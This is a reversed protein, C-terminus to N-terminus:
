VVWPVPTSCSPCEEGSAGEATTVLIGTIGRRVLTRGCKTCRTNAHPTDEHHIYVVGPWNQQAQKHSSELAASPTPPDQRETAWIFDPEYPLLVCPIPPGDKRAECIAALQELGGFQEEAGPLCLWTFETHVKAARAMEANSLITSRDGGLTTQLFREDLSKIGFTVASTLTLIERFADRSWMGSTALHTDLGAERAAAFIDAVFEHMPAPESVGFAIGACGHERALAVAEAPTMPRSRVAGTQSYKYTNCFPCRMTCGRGGLLLWNARPKYHYLPLRDSPVPEAHTVKGYQELFLTGNRNIRIGCKGQQSPHITCYHPCLQCSISDWSGSSAFRAATRQRGPNAM